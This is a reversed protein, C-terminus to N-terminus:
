VISGEVYLNLLYIKLLWFIFSCNFTSNYLADRANSYFVFIKHGASHNENVLLPKGLIAPWLFVDDRM